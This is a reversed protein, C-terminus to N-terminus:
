QYFMGSKESVLMKRDYLPAKEVFIGTATDQTTCLWSGIRNLIDTDLYYKYEWDRQHSDQLTRLVFATM